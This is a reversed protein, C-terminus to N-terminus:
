GKIIDISKEDGRVVVDGRNFRRKLWALIGRSQPEYIWRARTIAYVDKATDKKMLTIHCNFSQNVNDASLYWNVNDTLGETFGVQLKDYGWNVEWPNIDIDIVSALPQTIPIIKLLNNMGLKIKGAVITAHKIKDNPFGDLAFVEGSQKGDAYLSLFFRLEKIRGKPVNINMGSDVRYYVFNDNRITSDLKENPIKHVNAFKAIAITTQHLENRLEDEEEEKQGGLFTPARFDLLTRNNEDVIAEPTFPIFQGQM